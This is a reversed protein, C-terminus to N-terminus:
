KSVVYKINSAGIFDLKHLLINDYSIASVNFGHFHGFHFIQLAQLKKSSHSKDVSNPRAVKELTM